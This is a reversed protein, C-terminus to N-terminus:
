GLLPRKEPNSTFCNLTSALSKNVAAMIGSSFAFAFVANEPESLAFCVAALTVPITIGYVAGTILAIKDSKSMDSSYCTTLIATGVGLVSSISVTAAEITLTADAQREKDSEFLDITSKIGGFFASVLNTNGAANFFTRYHKKM